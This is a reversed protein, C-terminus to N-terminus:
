KPQQESWADQRARLGNWAGAPILEEVAAAVDKLLRVSDESGGLSGPDHVRGRATVEVSGGPGGTLGDDSAKATGFLGLEHLRQYLRQRQDDTIDATERWPETDSEYGPRWEVVATSEDFRLVWEYHYPPAVSGNGYEVTGTFDPPMVRDDATPKGPSQQACGAVVLLLVLIVARM